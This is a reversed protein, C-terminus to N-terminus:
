CLFLDGWFQDWPFWTQCSSAAGDMWGRGSNAMVTVGLSLQEGQSKILITM